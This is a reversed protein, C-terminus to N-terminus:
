FYTGNNNTHCITNGFLTVGIYGMWLNTKIYPM